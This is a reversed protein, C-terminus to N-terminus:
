TSLGSTFEVCYNEFKEYALLALINTDEKFLSDLKQFLKDLGDEGNLVEPTLELVAERAKGTLTLFVIPAMRKKEVSTAVKWINMEKRWSEYKDPDLPPPAPNFKVAAMKNLLTDEKNKKNDM